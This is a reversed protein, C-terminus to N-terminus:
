FSVRFSNVLILSVASIDQFLYDSICLMSSVFPLHAYASWHSTVIGAGNYRADEEFALCLIFPIVSQLFFSKLLVGVEALWSELENQTNILMLGSHAVEPTLPLVKM